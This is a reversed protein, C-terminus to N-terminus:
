KRDNRDEEEQKKKYNYCQFHYFVEDDDEMEVVYLNDELVDEECCPCKGLKEVIYEYEVTGYKGGNGTRRRNALEDDRNSLKWDDYRSELHNM